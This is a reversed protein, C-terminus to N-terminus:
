RARDSLARLLGSRCAAVVVGPALPTPRLPDPCASGDLASPDGQANVFVLPAGSFAVLTAGARDVVLGLADRSGGEPMLGLRMLERDAADLAVLVGRNSLLRPTAGSGLAFDQLELTADSFRVRQRRSGLELEVFKRGDVLAFLRDGDLAARGVAGGLNAIEEPEGAAARVLVGGNKGVALAQGRWEFVARMPETTSVSWAVSARPGLRTLRAGTALIAGGDSTPVTVPTAEWDGRALRERELVRGAESIAVIEGGHGVVVRLEGGILLPGGVLDLGTRLSWRTHGATDLESVRGHGHAIILGGKADALPPGHIPGSVRAQWAIGPARPFAVSSLNRGGADIRASVAAGAPPSSRLRAPVRPDLPEARAGPPALAFVAGLVWVRPALACLGHSGRGIKERRSAQEAFPPHGEM